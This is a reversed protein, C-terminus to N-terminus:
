LQGDAQAAKWGGLNYKLRGPSANQSELYNENM